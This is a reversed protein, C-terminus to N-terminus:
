PCCRTGAGGPLAGTLIPAPGFEPDGFGPDGFGPDTFGDVPPLPDDFPSPLDAPAPRAPPPDTFPPTGAPPGTVELTLDIREELGEAATVTAVGDAPGPREARGILLVTRADGPALVGVRSVVRPGDPHTLGDPLEARVTIDSLPVDGSNRVTIRVEFEEGRRVREPGDATVELAPVAVATEAALTVAPTVTARGGYGNPERGPTARVPREVFVTVGRAEGAPLRGLEWTLDRGDFAAPPDADVPRLGDPRERLRVAATDAPGTNRVTLTYRLLPTGDAAADGVFAPRTRTVRVGPTVASDAADVTESPAPGTAADPDRGDRNQADGGPPRLGDGRRGAPRDRRAPADWADDWVGAPRLRPDRFPVPSADVRWEGPPDVAREVGDPLRTRRLTAAVEPRTPTAPEEGLDMGWDIVLPESRGRAVPVPDDAFGDGPPAHPDGFPDASEGDGDAIPDGPPAPDPKPLDYGPFEDGSFRDDPVQPPAALMVGPASGFEPDTMRDFGDPEDAAPFRDSPPAPRPPVVAPEAPLEVAALSRADDNGSLFLLAILTLGALGTGCAFAWGGDGGSAALTRWVGGVTRNLWAGVAGFRAAIAALEAASEERIDALVASLGAFSAALTRRWDQRFEALWARVAPRNWVPDLDAATPVTFAILPSYAERAVWHVRPPTSRVDRVFLRVARTARYDVFGLWMAALRPLDILWLLVPKNELRNSDFRHGYSSLDKKLDRRFERYQRGLWAIPGTRHVASSRRRRRRSRVPAPTPTNAAEGRDAEDREATGRDATGRDATGRVPPDPEGRRGAADPLRIVFPGGDGFDHEVGRADRTGAGTRPRDARDADTHEFRIREPDGQGSDTRDSDARERRRRKRRRPRDDRRDDRDDDPPPDHSM